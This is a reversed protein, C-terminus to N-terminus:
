KSKANSINKKAPNIKSKLAKICMAAQGYTLEKIDDKSFSTAVWKMFSEKKVGAKEILLEILDDQAMTSPMDNRAVTMEEAQGDDDATEVINLLCCVSYRRMYTLSMGFGQSTGKEQQLIVRSEIFKTPDSRLALKTSLIQIPQEVLVEVAITQIIMLGAEKLPAKIANMVDDLNAYKSNTFTNLRKKEVGKFNDHFFSLAAEVTEPQFKKVDQKKPLGKVILEKEVKKATM